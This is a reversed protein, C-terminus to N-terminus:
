AARELATALSVAEALETVAAIEDATGFGRLEVRVDDVVGEALLWTERGESVSLGLVARWTEFDTRVSGHVLVALLPRGINDIRYTAAPLEPNRRLLDALLLVPAGQQQLNQLHSSTNM